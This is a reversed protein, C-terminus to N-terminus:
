FAKVRSNVLRPIIIVTTIIGTIIIVMINIIALLSCNSHALDEVSCKLNFM